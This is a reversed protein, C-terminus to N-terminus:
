RARVVTAMWGVAPTGAGCGSLLFSGSRGPGCTGRAACPVVTAGGAPAGGCGGPPGAASTLGDGVGGGAPFTRRWGLGPRRAPAVVPGSATTCLLRRRLRLWLRATRGRSCWRCIDRRWLRRGACGASAAAGGGGGGAYRQAATHPGATGGGWVHSQRGAAPLHPEAAGAAPLPVSRLLSCRRGCRRCLGRGPRCRLFRVFGPLSCCVPPRTRRGNVNASTELREACWCTRSSGPIAHHRHGGPVPGAPRHAADLRHLRRDGPRSLADANRPLPPLGDRRGRRHRRESEGAGLGHRRARRLDGAPRHREPLARADRTEEISLQSGYWYANKGHGYLLVGLEDIGDVIEHEDLIHCKPQRRAPRASCRTCRCCRTTARTTPTTAPRGTSSATRRRAAHFLRRDLDVRQPHGPLRIAGRADPVLLARAYQRRAAASLDGRRLRDNHKRGNAPM